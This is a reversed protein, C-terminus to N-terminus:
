RNMLAWGKCASMIIHCYAHQLTPFPHPLLHSCHNMGLVFAVVVGMAGTAAVDGDRVVIVDVVHVVTVQVAGVTIVVILALWGSVGGVVNVVVDVAFSTPMDCNWVAVVDVIDMVAVAMDGVGAVVVFM